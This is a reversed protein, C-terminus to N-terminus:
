TLPLGPAVVLWIAPCMPMVGREARSRRLWRSPRPRRTVTPLLVRSGRRPNKGACFAYVVSGQRCGNLGRRAAVHVAIVLRIVEAPARGSTSLRGMLSSKWWMLPPLHLVRQEILGCTVVQQGVHKGMRSLRWVVPSIADFLALNSKDNM